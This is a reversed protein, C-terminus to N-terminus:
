PRPRAKLRFWKMDAPAMPTTFGDLTDFWPTSGGGFHDLLEEWTVGNTSYELSHQYNTGLSSFDLAVMPNTTGAVCGISLIQLARSPGRLALRMPANVMPFYNSSVETWVGEPYLLIESQIVSTGNPQNTVTLWGTSPPANRLRVHFFGGPNGQDDTGVLMWSLSEVTLSFPGSSRVARDAVRVKFHGVQDYLAMQGQDWEGVRFLPIHTEMLADFELVLDNGSVTRVINTFPGAKLRNLSIQIPLNTGDFVIDFEWKALATSPPWLEYQGTTPPLSDTPAITEPLAARGMTATLCM